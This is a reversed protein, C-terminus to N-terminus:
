IDVTWKRGAKSEGQAFGQPKLNKAADSNGNSASSRGAYLQRGDRQVCRFTVAQGSRQPYTAAMAKCTKNSERNAAGYAASGATTRDGDGIYANVRERATPSGWGARWIPLEGIGQM